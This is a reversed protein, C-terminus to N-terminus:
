DAKRSAAFAKEERRAIAQRQAEQSSIVKAEESIDHLKLRLTDIQARLMAQEQHASELDTRLRAIEQEGALIREQLQSKEEKHRGFLM